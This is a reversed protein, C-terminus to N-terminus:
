AARPGKPGSSDSSGCALMLAVACAGLGLLVFMLSFRGLRSGATYCTIGFVGWAPPLLPESRRVARVFKKLMAGGLFM